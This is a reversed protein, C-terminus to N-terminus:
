RARWAKLAAECIARTAMDSRASSSPYRPPQAFSCFWLDRGAASLVFDYGMWRMVRILTMCEDMSESYRPTYPTVEREFIVREIESDLEEGTM